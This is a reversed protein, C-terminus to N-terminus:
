YKNTKVKNLFEFVPTNKSIIYVLLSPVFKLGLFCSCFIALLIYMTSYSKNYEKYITYFCSFILVFNIILSLIFLFLCVLIILRIHYSPFSFNFHAIDLNSSPKLISELLKEYLDPIYNKILIVSLSCSITSMLWSILLFFKNFTKRFYNKNISDSLNGLTFTSNLIPIFAVYKNPMKRKRMLSFFSLASFIYKFILMTVFLMIQMDM